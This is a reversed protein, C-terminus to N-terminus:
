DPIGLDTAAPEAAAQPNALVVRNRGQNKAGYMAQDAGEILADLSLPADPLSGCVGISVTVGLRIGGYQITMAEIARRLDEALVVATRPATHPLIVLFAEGGYRGVFDNIRVRASIAHAVEKLVEDGVLHGLRDNVAKFHDLDIMLLTLPSHVRDAEALRERLPSVLHRRNAIGTLEDRISLQRFNEDAAERVMFIFGLTFVILAIMMTLIYYNHRLEPSTFSPTSNIGFAELAARVLLVAACALSASAALVHGDGSRDPRLRLTIWGLLIHQAAYVLSALIVRGSLSSLMMLLGPPLVVMPMTVWWAQVRASHFRCVAMLLLALSAAVMLNGAVISIAEPILVGRLALTPLSLAFLALGSACLRLGQRQSHRSVWLLGGALTLSVVAIMVSMTFVDLTM